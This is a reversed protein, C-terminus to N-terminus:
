RMNAVHFQSAYNNSSAEILPRENLFASSSMTWWYSKKVFKLSKEDVDRDLPKEIRNKVVTCSMGSNESDQLKRTQITESLKCDTKEKTRWYADIQQKTLSRNREISASEPDLTPSDWGPMLSGM